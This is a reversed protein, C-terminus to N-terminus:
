KEEYNYSYAVVSLMLMEYSVEHSLKEARATNQLNAWKAAFTKM